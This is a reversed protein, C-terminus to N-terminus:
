NHNSTAHTHDTNVYVIVKAIWILANLKIADWIPAYEFQAVLKAKRLTEQNQANLNNM